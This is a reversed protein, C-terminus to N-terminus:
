QYITCALSVKYARRYPPTLGYYTNAGGYLNYAQWTTDSTQFVIETDLHDDRVVFYVLSAKPNHLANSLKGHGLHHTDTLIFHSLPRVKLEMLMLGHNLSLRCSDRHIMLSHSGPMLLITVTTLEGRPSGM